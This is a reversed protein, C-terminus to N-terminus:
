KRQEDEKEKLYAELEKVSFIGIKPLLEKWTYTSKYGSFTFLGSWVSIDKLYCIVDKGIDSCTYMYPNKKGLHLVLLEKLLDEESITFYTNVLIFIDDFSRTRNSKCQVLTCEEDFYTKVGRSSSGFSLLKKLFEPVTNFDKFNVYIKDM